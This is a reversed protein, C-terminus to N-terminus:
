GPDRSGVWGSRGWWVYAWGGGLEVRWGRLLWVFYRVELEGGGGLGGGGGPYIRSLEPDTCGVAVLKEKESPRLRSWGMPRQARAGGEGEGKHVPSKCGRQKGSLKLNTGGTM